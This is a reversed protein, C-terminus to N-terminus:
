LELRLEVSVKRGVRMKEYHFGSTDYCRHSMKPIVVALGAKSTLFKEWNIPREMWMKLDIQSDDTIETNM